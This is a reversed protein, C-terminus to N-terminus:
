RTLDTPKRYGMHLEQKEVGRLVLAEVWHFVDLLTYDHAVPLSQESSAKACSHICGVSRPPDFPHIRCQPIGDRIPNMQGDDSLTEIYYDMLRAALMGPLREREARTMPATVDLRETQLHPQDDFSAERGLDKIFTGDGQAEGYDSRRLARKAKFSLEM